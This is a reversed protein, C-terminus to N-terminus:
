FQMRRSGTRWQFCFVQVVMIIGDCFGCREPVDKCVGVSLEPDSAKLLSGSVRRPRSVTAEASSSRLSPPWEPSGLMGRIRVLMGENKKLEVSFGFLDWKLTRVLTFGLTNGTFLWSTVSLILRVNHTKWSFCSLLRIDGRLWLNATCVPSPKWTSAVLSAGQASLAAPTTRVRLVPSAVSLRESRRAGRSDCAAQGGESGAGVEELVSLM